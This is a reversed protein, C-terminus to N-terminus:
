GPGPAVIPGAIVNPNIAALCRLPEFVKYTFSSYNAMCLSIIFLLLSKKQFLRMPTTPVPNSRPALFGNLSSSLKTQCSSVSMATIPAPVPKTPAIAANFFPNLTTIKSFAADGPPVVAIEPPTAQTGFM